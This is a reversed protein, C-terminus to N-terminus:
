LKSYNFVKYNCEQIFRLYTDDEFFILKDDDNKYYVYPVNEDVKLLYYDSRCGKLFISFLFCNEEKLMVKDTNFVEAFAKYIKSAKIKIKRRSIILAFINRCKDPIKVIELEKNVLKAVVIKMRM